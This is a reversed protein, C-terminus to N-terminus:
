VFEPATSQRRLFALRKHPSIKDFKSIIRKQSEDSNIKDKRGNDNNAIEERRSINIGNKNNGSEGVYIRM